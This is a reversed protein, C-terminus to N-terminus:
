PGGTYELSVEFGLYSEVGTKEPVVQNLSQNKTVHHRQKVEGTSLFDFKLPSM